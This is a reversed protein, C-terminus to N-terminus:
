VIMKKEIRRLLEYNWLKQAGFQDQKSKNDKWVKRNEMSVIEYLGVDGMLNIALPIRHIIFVIKIMKSSKIFLKREDINNTVTCAPRMM